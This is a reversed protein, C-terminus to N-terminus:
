KSKHTEVDEWGDIMAKIGSLPKPGSTTTLYIHMILFAAFAWALLSHLPGLIILGGVREALSPWQQAGWIMLGTFVQAPLLLNLLGFYAIKQLPNLKNERNKEFPHPAHQFMGKLYFQMQELSRVFFDAPMPIFQKIEGSALHYFLALGANIMLIFGFINHISVMWAFSLWSFLEPKHIAAGTTLLMLILAAQLWHWLRTYFSYIYVRKRSTLHARSRRHVIYRATGHTGVALLILAVLTLGLWDIIPLADTGIVYFGASMLNPKGESSFAEPLDLNIPVVPISRLLTSSNSHCATCAKTAQARQIAHHIPKAIGTVQKGNHVEILNFPALKGHKDPLLWPSVGTILGKEIGRWETSINDQQFSVKAYAPAAIWNSHCSECRLKSFHHKKFPLWNHTQQSDHCDECQHAESFQHNPQQLYDHASLKRPDFRLHKKNDHEPPRVPNNTSGHCDACGVVREAHADFSYHRNEKDIINLASQRISQGSFIEGTLGFLLREERTKTLDLPESTTHVLTHCSGCADSTPASLILKTTDITGQTDVYDSLAGSEPSTHCQLCKGGQDGLTEVSPIEGFLQHRLRQKDTIAKKHYPPLTQHIYDSNHCQGCTQDQSIDDGQQWPQGQTNLLGFNPHFSNAWAPATLTNFTLSLSISVLASVLGTKM